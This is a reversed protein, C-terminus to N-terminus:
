ILGSVFRYVVFCVYVFVLCLIKSPNTGLTNGKNLFCLLSPCAPITSGETSKNIGSKEFYLISHASVIVFNLINYLNMVAFLLAM